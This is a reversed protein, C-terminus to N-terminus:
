HLDFDDHVLRVFAAEPCFDGGKGAAYRLTFGFFLEHLIKMLRDLAIKRDVNGLRLLAALFANKFDSYSISRASFKSTDGFSVPPDKQADVTAMMDVALRADGPSQSNGDVAILSEFDSKKTAQYLKGFNGFAFQILFAAAPTPSSRM